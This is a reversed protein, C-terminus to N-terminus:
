HKQTDNQDQISLYMRATTPIAENFIKMARSIAEERLAGDPAEVLTMALMGGAFLSTATMIKSIIMDDGAEEWKAAYEGVVDMLAHELEQAKKRSDDSVMVEAMTPDLGLERMMKDIGEGLKKHSHSM